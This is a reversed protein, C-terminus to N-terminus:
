RVAGGGERLGGPRRDVPGARVRRRRRDFEEFAQRRLALALTEAEEVGRWAVRDPLVHERDILGFRAEVGLALPDGQDAVRVNREEEGPRGRGPALAEGGAGLGGVAVQEVQC